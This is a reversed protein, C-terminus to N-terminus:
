KTHTGTYKTKHLKMVQVPEQVREMSLHLITKDARSDKKNGKMVVNVNM